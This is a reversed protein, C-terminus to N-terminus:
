IAFHLNYIYCVLIGTGVGFLIGFLVDSLYHVYLYLRSFAIGAAYVLAIIGLRPAYMLIATAAAFSSYTHGSPFSFDDPPAIITQRDDRILFPRERKMARKLVINAIFVSSFLAGLICFTAERSIKTVYLTIAVALWIIGVNGSFSLFRMVPDLKRSRLNEYIWDIARTDLSRLRTGM